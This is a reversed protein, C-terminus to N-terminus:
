KVLSAELAIAMPFIHDNEVHTHEGLAESFARLQRVMEQYDASAGAPATYGHLLAAIREHRELEGDHDSMMVSIPNRVTGCHMPGIPSGNRSADFLDLIYPFLVQEEKMLHIDLDSLSQEFLMEVEGLAPNQSKVKRILALTGPGKERVARHHVKLVYDILLDMPWEGFSYRSNDTM